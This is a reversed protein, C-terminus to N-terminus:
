GPPADAQAINEAAHRHSDEEPLIARHDCCGDVTVIATTRGLAETTLRIASDLHRASHYIGRHVITAARQRATDVEQPELGIAILPNV